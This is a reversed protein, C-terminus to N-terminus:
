NSMAKRRPITQLVKALHEIDFPKTLHAHFGEAVARQIDEPRGFGTLAIAPVDQKGPLERLKKLFEFGDMGPMSIDSLVVDYEKESALRL